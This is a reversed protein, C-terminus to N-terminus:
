AVEVRGICSGRNDEIDPMEGAIRLTFSALDDSRKTDAVFSAVGELYQGDSLRMRFADGVVEGGIIVDVMEIAVISVSGAM